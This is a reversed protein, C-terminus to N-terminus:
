RIILPVCAVSITSDESFSTVTLRMKGSVPRMEYEVPETFVGDLVDVFVDGGNPGTFGDDLRKLTVTAGEFSGSLSFMHTVGTDVRFDYDGNANIVAPYPLSAM